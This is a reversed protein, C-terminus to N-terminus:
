SNEDWLNGLYKEELKLLREKLKLGRFLLHRLYDVTGLILFTALAGLLIGGILIVPNANALKEYPVNEFVMACLPDQMQLIYVGFSVPSLLKVLGIVKRSTIQIRSFLLTLVIGGLLITPFTQNRIADEALIKSVPAGLRSRVLLLLGLATVVCGGYICLLVWSRIKSGFAFRRICAGLIYMLLLWFGSYGGSTGYANPYLLVPALSFLGIITLCLVKAQRRNLLALGRNLLPILLFLACYGSFYWFFKMSAPFFARILRLKGVTGPYLLGQLLTGGVSYLAVQLWLLVINTYRFKSGSTVYGTILAYCNGCSFFAFYLAWLCVYGASFPRVEESVDNFSIIHMVLVMFMSLIRLLDIGYHRTRNGAQLQTSNAM